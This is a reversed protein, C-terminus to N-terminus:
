KAPTGTFLAETGVLTSGDQYSAVCVMATEGSPLPGGTCIGRLAAIPARGPLTVSEVIIRQMGDEDADHGTFTIVTKGGKSFTVSKGDVTVITDCELPDVRQVKQADRLAEELKDVPACKGTAKEGQQAFAPAAILTLAAAATCALLRM